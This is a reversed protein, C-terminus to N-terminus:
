RQCEGEGDGGVSRVRRFVLVKVPRGQFGLKGLGLGLLTGRRELLEASGGTLDVNEQVVFADGEGVRHRHELAAASHHGHAGCDLGHTCDDIIVGGRAGCADLHTVHAESM